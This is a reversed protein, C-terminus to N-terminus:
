GEHNEEQEPIYEVDLVVLENDEAYDFIAERDFSSAWPIGHRRDYAVYIRRQKM